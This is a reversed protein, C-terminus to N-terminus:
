LPRAEWPLCCSVVPYVSLLCLAHRVGSTLCPCTTLVVSEACVRAWLPFHVVQRFRPSRICKNRMAVAVFEDGSTGWDLLTWRSPYSWFFGMSQLNQYVKGTSTLVCEDNAIKTGPASGVLVCPKFVLYQLEDTFQTGPDLFSSLRLTAWFLKSPEAGQRRGWWVHAGLRDEKKVKKEM